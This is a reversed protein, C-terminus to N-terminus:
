FDVTATVFLLRGMYDYFSGYTNGRGGEGGIFETTLSPEKDLANNVGARLTLNDTARWLASLDLYSRSALDQTEFAAGQLAPHSSRRSIEAEGIYRWTLGLELGDLWPTHWLANLNHRWEPKPHGCSFGHYGACDFTEEAPSTPLPKITYEDLYTGVLSLSLDGLNRNFIGSLDVAYTASVDVGTTKLSGTNVNLTSIYSDSTAFLTGGEGRQILDCFIPDGNEMCERLTINANIVGVLGEVEIDFYDFSVTLGPAFGPQLVTGLVLTDGEEPQLDPNGGQLQGVFSNDVISGYDEPLVGTRACEELSAFPDPGSCPDFSGDPNQALRLVVGRTQGSFLEIVNPARVAHQYSGRLRVADHVLWNIGFKYTDTSFLGKYDSYRYGVDLALEEFLTRDDVIPVYLEGFVERVTTEGEVPPGGGAGAWAENQVVLVPNTSSNMLLTNERHEVGLAVGIGESAFPSRVGYEDLDGTISAVVNTMTTDGFRLAASETFALAADSYGTGPGTDSYYDLPACNDVDNTPNADVNIACAPQLYTDPDVPTGDPLVRRDIVAYLAQSDRVDSNGEFVSRLEVSAYTLSASYDFPGAFKGRTGANIRFSSQDADWHRTGHETTRYNVAIGSVIDGGLYAGTVPDYNGATSLGRSTCLFDAQAASLFPNDCNMGGAKNALIGNNIVGGPSYDSPTDISYLNTEIFPIFHENIEYHAVGGFSYQRIPRLLPEYPNQNFRDTVPAGTYPQRVEFDGGIARFEPPLGDAGTNVFSAPDDVPSPRCAYTNGAATNGLECVTYDRESMKTEETKAYTVYGAVNGRGGGLNLGLALSYKQSFGDFVNSDPLVYEGPNVAEWDRVMSQIGSNDNHHQYGSFTTQLRVGEFDDRLKFNIVGALADSGYTASAGGTLVEVNELLILPIQNIDSAVHLPSGYPLRHGNVLVLTRQAGLGRLNVEATTAEVTSSSRAPTVQPLRNILEEPRVAGRADFADAEVQLIPSVSELNARRIHSGTVVVEEIAADPGNDNGAEGERSQAHASSASTM